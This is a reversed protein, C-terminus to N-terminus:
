GDDEERRRATPMAAVINPPPPNCSFKVRGRLSLPHPSPPQPQALMATTEDPEAAPRSRWSPTDTTMEVAVIDDDAANAGEATRGARREGATDCAPAPRLSRISGEEEDM